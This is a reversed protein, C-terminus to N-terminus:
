SRRLIEPIIPNLYGFIKVDDNIVDVSCSCTDDGRCCPVYHVSDICRYM